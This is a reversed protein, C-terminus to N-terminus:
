TKSSSSCAPSVHWSELSNSHFSTTFEWVAFLRNVRVLNLDLLFYTVSCSCFSVEFSLCVIVDVRKEQQFFSWDLEPVYVFSFRGSNWLQDLSCVANKHQWWLLLVEGSAHTMAAEWIESALLSKKEKTHVPLFFSIYFKIKVGYM